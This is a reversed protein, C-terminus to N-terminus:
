ARKVLALMQELRAIQAEIARRRAAKGDDVPAPPPPPALARRIEVLRARHREHAPERLILQEYVEV